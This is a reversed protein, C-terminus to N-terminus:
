LQLEESAGNTRFGVTLELLLAVGTEVAGREAGHAAPPSRASNVASVGVSDPSWQSITYTRDRVLTIIALAYLAFPLPPPHLTFFHFPNEQCPGRGGCEADIIGHAYKSNSDSSTKHIVYHSSPRQRCM